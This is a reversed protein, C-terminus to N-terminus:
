GTRYRCTTSRAWSRTPPQTSSTSITGGSNSQLILVKGEFARTFGQQAGLPEVMVSGALFLCCVLASTLKM